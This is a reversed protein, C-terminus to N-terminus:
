LILALGRWAMLSHKRKYFNRISAERWVPNAFIIPRMQQFCLCFLSWIKTRSWGWFLTCIKTDVSTAGEDNTQKGESKNANLLNSLANQTDKSPKPVEKEITKEPAEDKDKSSNNKLVPISTDTQTLLDETSADQVPNESPLIKEKSTSNPSSAVVEQQQPGSGVDSFGFNIAIGYEEPPDM